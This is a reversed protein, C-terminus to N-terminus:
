VRRCLDRAVVRRNRSFIKWTTVGLIHQFSDAKFIKCCYLQVSPKIAFLIGYIAIYRHKSANCILNQSFLVRIIYLFHISIHVLLNIADLIEKQFTFKLVTNCVCLIHM